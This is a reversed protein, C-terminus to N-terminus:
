DNIIENNLSRLIYRIMNRYYGDCDNSTVLSSGNKIGDILQTENTPNIRKVIEKWKSFMNEIPNLFPSYPPLYQVGINKEALINRIELTKHFRVNDMVFIFNNSNNIRLKEILEILFIGFTQSNFAFDQSKYYVIGNKSIACCVSINRSRIQPVVLVAPTGVASRGRSTRMSVNFGTEDIFIINPESYEAQLELFKLAYIRREVINEENNRREPQLELRKLSYKFGKIYKAISTTSISVNFNEFLNEKIKRLSIAANIDILEQIHDIMQNTLKPAVFGGKKKQLFTGRELYQSIISEVTQRKFSMFEAIETATRGALYALVIRERSDDTIKQNSRTM